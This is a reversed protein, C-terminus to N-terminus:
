QNIAREFLNSSRVGLNTTQHEQNVTRRAGPSVRGIEGSPSSALTGSCKIATPATLDEFLLIGDSAKRLLSALTAPADRM